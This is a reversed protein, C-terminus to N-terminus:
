EGVNGNRYKGVQHGVLKDITLNRPNRALGRHENQLVALAGNHRTAAAVRDHVQGIELHIHKGHADDAVIFGPRKSSWANRAFFTDNLPTFRRM